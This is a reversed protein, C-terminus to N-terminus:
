KRVVLMGCGKEYRVKSGQCRPPDFSIDCGTLTATINCEKGLLLDVRAKVVQRAGGCGTMLATLTLCPLWLGPKTKFVSTPVFSAMHGKM